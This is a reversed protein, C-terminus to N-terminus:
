SKNFHLLKKQDKTVFNRLIDYSFNIKHMINILDMQKAKKERGADLVVQRQRAERGKKRCLCIQRFPDFIIQSTTMDIKELRKQMTDLAQQAAIPDKEEPATLSSGGGGSGDITVGAPNDITMEPIGGEMEVSKHEEAGNDDV